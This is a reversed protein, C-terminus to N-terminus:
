NLDFETQSLIRDLINRKQDNSFFNRLSFKTETQNQRQNGTHKDSTDQTKRHKDDSLPQVAFIKWAIILILALYVFLLWDTGLRARM